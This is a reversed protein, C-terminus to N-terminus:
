IGYIARSHKDLATFVISQEAPDELVIYILYWTEEATGGFHSNSQAQSEVTREAFQTKQKQTSGTTSHTRKEFIYEGSPSALSGGLIPKGPPCFRLLGGV